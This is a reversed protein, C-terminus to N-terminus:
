LTRSNLLPYKPLAPGAADCRLHPPRRRPRHTAKRPLGCAGDPTSESPTPVRGIAPHVPLQYSPPGAVAVFLSLRGGSIRLMIHGSVEDYIMSSRFEAYIERDM